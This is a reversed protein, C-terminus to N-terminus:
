FFNINGSDTEKSAFAAAEFGPEMSDFSKGMFIVNSLLCWTSDLRSIAGPQGSRM